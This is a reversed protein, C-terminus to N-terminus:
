VKRPPSDNDLKLWSFRYEKKRHSNIKAHESILYLSM